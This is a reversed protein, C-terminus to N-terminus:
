WSFSLRLLAWPCRCMTNRELVVELFVLHPDVTRILTKKKPFQSCHAYYSFDHLRWNRRPQLSSLSWYRPSIALELCQLYHKSRAIEGLYQLRHHSAGQRWAPILWQSRCLFLQIVRNPQSGPCAVLSSIREPYWYVDCVVRDMPAYHQQVQPALRHETGKWEPAQDQSGGLNIPGLCVGFTSDEQCGAPFGIIQRRKIQAVDLWHVADLDRDLECAKVQVDGFDKNFALLVDQGKHQVCRNPFHSLLKQNLPTTHARNAHKFGM